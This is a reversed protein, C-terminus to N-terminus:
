RLALLRFSFFRVSDFYSFNHAVDGEFNRLEFSQESLDQSPPVLAISAMGSRGIFAAAAWLKVLTCETVLILDEMRDVPLKQNKSWDFWSGVNDRIYEEFAKERMIYERHGDHPLSLLAGPGKCEYTFGLASYFTGTRTSYTLRIM